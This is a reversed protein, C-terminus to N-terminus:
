NQINNTVKDFKSMWSRGINTGTSGWYTSYVYADIMYDVKAVDNTKSRKSTTLLIPYKNSAKLITAKRYQDMGRYCDFAWGNKINWKDSSVLSDKRMIEKLWDGYESNGPNDFELSILYHQDDIWSDNDKSEYRYDGTHEKIATQWVGATQKETDRNYRNVVSWKGSNVEETCGSNRPLNMVMTFTNDKNLKFSKLKKANESKVNWELTQTFIYEPLIIDGSEGGSKNGGASIAAIIIVAAGAIFWWKKYIPKKTARMESM